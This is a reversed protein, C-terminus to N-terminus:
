PAEGQKPADLLSGLAAILARILAVREATTEAVQRRMEADRIFRATEGPVAQYYDILRALMGEIPAYELRPAGSDALTGLQGLLREVMRQWEQISEGAKSKFGRRAMPRAFFPLQEFEAETLALVDRLRESLSLAQELIEAQGLDSAPEADAAAIVVQATGILGARELVTYGDVVEGQYEEALAVALYAVAVAAHGAPMLGEYAAHLSLGLFEDVGLGLRPALERAVGRIGPTDVMGIALPVVRVGGEGVEAALSQSFAAIGQKSAIYASLYPMAEASIMNVITGRGRNLMGPLFAKCTLFTGRLNVAMVRDWTEVETDVVSAVPCVIANNVLIGAPEFREETARRLRDVEAQSSVDTQVFLAQGGAGTVLRETELGEKSIEAVVVSAGLWAFALAIQRGIGRGGGTVVVTEGALGGPEWGVSRLLSELERL